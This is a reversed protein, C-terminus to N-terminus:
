NLHRYENPTLGTKSKFLRSLSQPYEFGLDYAIQGISDTTNLLATKTKDILMENIHTKISKGTEKKLLDSLYNASMSMEKGFYSVTPIGIKTPLDKRFITKSFEIM